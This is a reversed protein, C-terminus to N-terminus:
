QTHWALMLQEVKVVDYLYKRSGFPQVYHVGEVFRSDRVNHLYGESHRLHQALEKHTMYKM